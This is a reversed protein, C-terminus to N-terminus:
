KEKAGTPGSVLLDIELLPQYNIQAQLDRVAVVQAQLTNSPKSPDMAAVMGAGSHNMAKMSELGQAMRDKASPTSKELEKAKDVTKKLDRLFGM